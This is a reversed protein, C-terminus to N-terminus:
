VSLKEFGPAPTFHTVSRGIDEGRQEIRDRDGQGLFKGVERLYAVRDPDIGM